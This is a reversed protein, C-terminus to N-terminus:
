ESWKNLVRHTRLLIKRRMHSPNLSQIAVVSPLLSQQAMCRLDNQGSEKDAAVM